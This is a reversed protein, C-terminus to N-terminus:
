RRAGRRLESAPMDFLDEDLGRPRRAPRQPAVPQLLADRAPAEREYAERAERAERRREAMPPEVPGRLPADLRDFEGLSLIASAVREAAQEAAQEIPAM